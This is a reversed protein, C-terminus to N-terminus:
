FKPVSSIVAKRQAVAPDNSPLFLTRALGRSALFERLDMFETKELRLRLTKWGAHELQMVVRDGRYLLVTAYIGEKVGKIIEFAKEASLRKVTAPVAKSKMITYDTCLTCLHEMILAIVINERGRFDKTFFFEDPYYTESEM